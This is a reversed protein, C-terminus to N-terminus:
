IFYKIFASHTTMSLSSALHPFLFPWLRFEYADNQTLSLSYSSAAKLEAFFTELETCVFLERLFNFNHLAGYM